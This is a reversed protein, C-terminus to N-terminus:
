PGIEAVNEGPVIANDITIAQGNRLKVQGALVVRDGPELGATVEVREGNVTGTSVQRRHVQLQGDQEAVVFVSDGYPAYTIATRPLTLVRERAPLLVEV